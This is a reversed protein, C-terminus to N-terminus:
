PTQCQTLLLTTSPALMLLSPEQPLYAINKQLHTGTGSDGSCHLHPTQMSLQSTAPALHVISEEDLADAKM